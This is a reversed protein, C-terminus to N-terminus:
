TQGTKELTGTVDERVNKTLRAGTRAEHAATTASRSPCGCSAASGRPLATAPSLACDFPRRRPIKPTVWASTLDPLLLGSGPVM